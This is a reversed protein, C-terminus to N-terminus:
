RVWGRTRPATLAVAIAALLFVYQLELALAGNRGLAFVDGPHALAIAFVMNIAIVIAAPGVFVGALLLLPAVIEGVYVGYAIWTPLGAGALLGEIGRVGRTVKSWGHFLMLIALGWRLLLHGLAPRHLVDLLM